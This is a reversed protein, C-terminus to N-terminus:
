ILESSFGVYTLHEPSTFLVTQISKYMHRFILRYLNFKQKVDWDNLLHLVHRRYAVHNCIIPLFNKTVVQILTVVLNKISKIFLFSNYLLSSFHGM